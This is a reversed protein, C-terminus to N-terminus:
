GPPNLGLFADLADASIEALRSRVVAIVNQNWWTSTRDPLDRGPKPLPAEGPTLEWDESAAEHDRYVLVSLDMSDDGRTLRVDFATAGFGGFGASRDGLTVTIGKAEWAGQLDAFSFPTGTTDPIPTATATPTPTARTAPTPTATAVRSPSPTPASGDGGACATLVAGLAFVVAPLFRLSSM